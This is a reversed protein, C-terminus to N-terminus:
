RPCGWDIMMDGSGTSTRPGLYAPAGASGEAECSCRGAWGGDGGASSPRGHVSGLPGGRRRGLRRREEGANLDNTWRASWRSAPEPVVASWARSSSGLLVMFRCKVPAGAV